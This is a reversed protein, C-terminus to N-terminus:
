LKSFNDPITLILKNHINFRRTLHQYRGLTVCPPLNHEISFNIIEVVSQLQIVAKNDKQPLLIESAYNDARIEKEDTSNDEAIYLGKKGDNLVHCAEHFFSFILSDLRNQRPSLIILAKNGIWKTAGHWPAKPINPVITLAVGAQACKDIMITILKAPNQAHIYLNDRLDSITKQFLSKNYEIDNDLIDRLKLEGFRVWTALSIKHTEFKSNCRAAIAPNDWFSKWAEVSAVGFFALVENLLDHNKTKTKTIENDRLIKLISTPITKLWEIDNKQKNQIALRTIDEQYNSELNMWFNAPAGIAKEFLLATIPTIPQKAKLIRNISQETLGTRQSLEKRSMDLADLNDKLVEGPSVAYDAILRSM